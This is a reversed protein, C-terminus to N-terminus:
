LDFTALLLSEKKLLMSPTDQNKVQQTARYFIGKQEYEQWRVTLSTGRFPNLTQRESFCDDHLEM